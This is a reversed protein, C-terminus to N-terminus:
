GEEPLLSTNCPSGDDGPGWVAKLRMLPPTQKNRAHIGFRVEPRQKV